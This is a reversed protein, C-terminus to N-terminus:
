VTTPIDDVANEAIKSAFPLHREDDVNPNTFQAALLDLEVVEVLQELMPSLQDRALLECIAEHAIRPARLVPWIEDFERSQECYELLEDTARFELTASTEDVDGGGSEGKLQRLDVNSFSFRRIDGDDDFQPPDPTFAPPPANPDVDDDYENRRDFPDEDHGGTTENQAIEIMSELYLEADVLEDDVDSEERSM